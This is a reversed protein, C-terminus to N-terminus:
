GKQTMRRACGGGRGSRRDLRVQVGPAIEVGLVEEDSSAYM